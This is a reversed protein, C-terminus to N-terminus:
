VFAKQAARRGRFVIGWGDEKMGTMLSGKVEGEELFRCHKEIRKQKGTSEEAPPLPNPRAPPLHPDEPSHM